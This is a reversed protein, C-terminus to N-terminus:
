SELHLEQLSHSPQGRARSKKTRYMCAISAPGAFRHLGFRSGKQNDWSSVVALKAEPRESPEVIPLVILKGLVCAFALELNSYMFTTSFNGLQKLHKLCYCNNAGKKRSCPLFLGFYGQRASLALRLNGVVQDVKAWM